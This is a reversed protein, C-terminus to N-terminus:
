PQNTCESYTEENRHHFSTRSVEASEISCTTETPFVGNCTFNNHTKRVATQTQYKHTEKQRETGLKRHYQNMIYLDLVLKGPFLLWILYWMVESTPPIYFPHSRDKRLKSISAPSPTAMASILVVPPCVSQYLLCQSKKRHVVELYSPEWARWWGPLAKTEALLTSLAM